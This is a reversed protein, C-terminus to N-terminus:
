WSKTLSLYVTADGKGTVPGDTLPVAVYNRVAFGNILGADYGLGASALFESARETASPRNNHIYGVDLFGFPRLHTLLPGDPYLDRGISLRASVGTDGQAEAFAYGRESERSGLYFEEIAPLRDASYQGWLEARVTAGQALRDLPVDWGAGFRLHTFTEDGDDVASATTRNGFSLHLAYEFAGGNQLAGSYIWSGSVVNVSSEFTAGGSDVETASQRFEILGYGFRDISRVVPYGYALVFNRGVVDTQLLAGTANRRSNVNGAFIEAFGGSAGVPFRYHVAGYASNDESAFVHGFSVDFKLMDGPTLASYYEQHLSLTVEKGLERPSHDITASGFSRDEEQGIVRLTAVNDGSEYDIQTTVSIAEIDEVLMVARELQQQNVGRRGVVPALYKRALGLYDESVGEIVVQGIEGEDVYLSQGDAGVTVVALFYGDERYIAEVTAALDKATIEGTRQVVVQAAFGLLENADYRSAGHLTYARDGAAQAFALQSMLVPVAGLALALCKMNRAINM